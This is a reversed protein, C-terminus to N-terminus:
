KKGRNIKRSRRAVKNKARRKAVEEDPVTGLYLGKRGNRHLANLALLMLKGPIPEPM